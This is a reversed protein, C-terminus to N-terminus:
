PSRGIVTTAATGIPRQWRRLLWNWSRAEGGYGVTVTGAEDSRRMGMIDCYFAALKEPDTVNLTLATIRPLPM